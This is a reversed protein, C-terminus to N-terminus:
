GILGKHQHPLPRVENAVVGDLRHVGDRLVRQPQCGLHREHLQTILEAGIRQRHCLLNCPKTVGYPFRRAGADERCPDGLRDSFRDFSEARPPREQLGPILMWREVDFLWCGIM